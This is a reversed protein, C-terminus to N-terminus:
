LECNLIELHNIFYSTGLGSNKVADSFLAEPENSLITKIYKGALKVIESKLAPIGSILMPHSIVDLKATKYANIVYYLIDNASQFEFVNYIVLKQNKVVSLEMSKEYLHVFCGDIGQDASMTCFPLSTHCFDAGPFKDKLRDYLDLNLSFVCNADIRSIRNSLAKSSHRPPHSVSLYSKMDKLDFIEEPVLAFYREHVMIRIAYFERLDFVTFQSLSKALSEFTRESSKQFSIYDPSQFGKESTVFLSFGDLSLQISLISKSISDINFKEKTFSYDM